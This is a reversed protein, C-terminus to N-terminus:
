WAGRHIANCARRNASWPSEVCDYCRGDRNTAGGHGCTRCRATAATWYFATKERHDNILQILREDADPDIGYREPETLM